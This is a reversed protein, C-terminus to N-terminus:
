LGKGGEQAPSALPAGLLAAALIAASLIKRMSM